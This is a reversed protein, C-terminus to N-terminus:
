LTYFLSSQVPALTMPQGALQNLSVEIGRAITTMPTDTPRNEFPDQLQIASKEILFFASAILTVLPVEVYFLNEVFGFPLMATFLIIFLQLYFTYTRPFVTNKLRECRGMLETLRTLTADLQVLQYDTLQGAQHLKRIHHAHGQLVALPQHVAALVDAQEALPIHTKVLTETPQRRLTEGLLYSWGIQRRAVDPISESPATDPLFTILQRVLSRSDNVIGGWIVRAEWWREYSQNTRFALLLSISTGVLATIGLPISLIELGIYHRLFFTLNAFVFVALAEYKIKGLLFSLPIPRNLLM